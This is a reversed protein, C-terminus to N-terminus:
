DTGGNRGAGLRREHSVGERADEARMTQASNSAQSTPKIRSQLTASFCSLHLEAAAQVAGTARNKGSQMSRHHTTPAQMPYRSRLTARMMFPHADFELLAATFRAFLLLCRFCRAPAPAPVALM